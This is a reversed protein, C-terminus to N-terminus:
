EEEETDPTRLAEAIALLAYVQAHNLLGAADHGNMGDAQNLLYCANEYHYHPSSM